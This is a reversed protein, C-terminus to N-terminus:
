LWGLAQARFRWNEGPKPCLSPKNGTVGALTSAIHESEQNRATAVQDVMPTMGRRM